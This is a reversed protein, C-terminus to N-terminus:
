VISRIYQLASRGTRGGNQMAFTKAGSLLEDISEYKVNHRNALGKVIEFYEEQDPENYYIRLGFRESLSTQENVADRFHVENERDKISERILHKRNSTVYFLINEPQEYISGEVASKLYKYSDENTEFSLDDIFIIFYLGRSKLKEVIDPIRKLQSKEIEILRLKKDGFMPLLAKVATSKGTGSDGVLLANLAKGGKIFKETNEILRRKQVEYGYIHEMRVPDFNEVARPNGSSDVSFARNERYIGCGGAEYESVLYDYIQEGRLNKFMETLADDKGYGIFADSDNAAAAMGRLPLMYLKKIAAIDHIVAKVTVENLCRRSECKLSFLNEDELIRQSLYTNISDYGSYLLESCLAYYLSVYSGEAVEEFSGSYMSYMDMYRCMLADSRLNRYIILNNLLNETM